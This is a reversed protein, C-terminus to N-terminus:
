MVLLRREAYTPSYLPHPSIRWWDQRRRRASSNQSNVSHRRHPTHDEIFSADADPSAWPNEDTAEDHNDEGYSGVLNVSVVEPIRSRPGSTPPTPPTAPDDDSDNGEDDSIFLTVPPHLAKASDPRSPIEISDHSTRRKPLHPRDGPPSAIDAAWQQVDQTKSSTQSLFASSAASANPREDSGWHRSSSPHARTTYSPLAHDVGLTGDPTAVRHGERQDAMAPRSHTSSMRQPM